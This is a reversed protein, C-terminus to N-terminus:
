FTREGGDTWRNEAGTSTIQKNFGPVFGIKQLM